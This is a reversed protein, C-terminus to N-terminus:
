ENIELEETWNDCKLFLSENKCINGKDWNWWCIENLKMITVEDFRYRLIYAPCGVVIAYDPVDKTVVAGAGIIAGNGIKVGGMIISNSGIWVDNGIMVKPPLDSYLDPRELIKRLIEPSTSIYNTPHMWPGIQCCKGISCYKGIDASVITTYPEIYTYDGIKVNERVQVDHLIRVHKGLKVGNSVEYSGIYVQNKRYHLRTKLLKWEKGWREPIFDKWM